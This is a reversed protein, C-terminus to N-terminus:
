CGFFCPSSQTLRQFVGAKSRSAPLHNHHDTRLFSRANSTALNGHEAM